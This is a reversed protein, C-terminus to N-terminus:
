RQQMYQRALDARGDSRAQSWKAVYYGGDIEGALRNGTVEEMHVEIGRWANGSHGEWPRGDKILEQMLKYQAEQRGFPDRGLQNYTDVDIEVAYQHVGDQVSYGPQVQDQAQQVHEIDAEDDPMPAMANVNPVAGLGFALAGAATAAKKLFSRRSLSPEQEVLLLLDKQTGGENLIKVFLEEIQEFTEDNFTQETLLSYRFLNEDEKIYKRWNEMILKM